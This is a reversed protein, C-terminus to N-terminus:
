GVSEKQKRVLLKLAVDVADTINDRVVNVRQNPHGQHYVHVDWGPDSVDLDVDLERKVTISARLNGLKIEYQSNPVIWRSLFLMPGLDEIYSDRDGDLFEEIADHILPTGNEYKM